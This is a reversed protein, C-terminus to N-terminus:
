SPSRRAPGSSSSSCGSTSTSRRSSGSRRTSRRIPGRRVVELQTSTAPPDVVPNASVWLGEGAVGAGILARQETRVIAAVTGDPLEGMTEVHAITGVKAYGGEYRPVLLVKGDARTAQTAARRGAEADLALTVVANPLVVTSTLPVVPLTLAPADPTADPSTTPADSM